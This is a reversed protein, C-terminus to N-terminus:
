KRIIRGTYPAWSPGNRSSVSEEEELEGSGTKGNRGAGKKERRVGGRQLMSRCFPEFSSGQHCWAGPLCGLRPYFGFIRTFCPPGAHETRGSAAGGATVRRAALMGVEPCQM